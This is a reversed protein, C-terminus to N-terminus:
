LPSLFMLYSLIWIMWSVLKIGPGVVVVIVVVVVHVSVVPDVIVVHAVAFVHVVVVHVAVVVPFVEVIPVVVVHDVVVVCVFGVVSDSVVCVSLVESVSHKNWNWPPHEVVM